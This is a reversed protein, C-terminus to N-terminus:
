EFIRATVVYVRKATGKIKVVCQYGDNARRLMNRESLTRAVLKPDLGACVESKWTEPPIMWEEVDGSGARWGARDPAPRADAHGHVDFRSDGYQEIFRRVQEIAQRVEAAEVGGRGQLWQRFAWVAAKTARGKAWPTIGLATALEGAAAVLAFRQAARRVQGDAGNQVNAVVFADIRKRASDAIKGVGTRIVRRVFEPGATGYNTSGAIKFMDALGGATTEAGANSFVGFGKGRDAPIDLMRVTQGARAKRGKDEAVKTAMSTEGTSLIVIRWTKTERPSTDRNMRSKGSGNALGYIAAGAERAELVGLEDLVLLTDNASAAAAELGNATARWGRVYGGSLSGRGWVSAAIQLLTSKGISSPGFFNIGFGDTKLLHLLPGVFAQSIAFIALYHAAAMKGVSDRWDEFSGRAEYPGVASADFIVIEAEGPGLTENPLVFCDRGGVNHWGTCQVVTARRKSKVGAFYSLLLRQQNPVIALGEDALPSCLIAPDGHLHADPVHRRHVRGDRDAFQIWKGWDGGGPNRSEGIVEFAACIRTLEAGADGASANTSKNRISLGDKTMEFPGYSVHVPGPDFRRAFRNAARRLAKFDRWENAADAADWGDDPERKAGSPTVSALSIADIISVECDLDALRRAVDNAYRLGAEDADPWIRVKRGALRSWDTKAAAGAGGSSTTTIVNQRYIKAAADAAKEGECVLVSASPNTAIEELHFLPRRDPWAKLRWGEGEASRCWSM